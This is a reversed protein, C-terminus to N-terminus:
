VLHDDSTGELKMWDTIQFNHVKMGVLITVFFTLTNFFFAVLLVM